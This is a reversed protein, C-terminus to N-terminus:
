FQETKSRRFRVLNLQRRCFCTCVDVPVHGPVVLVVLVGPDRQEGRVLDVVAGPPFGPRSTIRGLLGVVFPVGFSEPSLGGRGCWGLYDADVQERLVRFSVGVSEVYSSLSRVVRAFAEVSFDTAAGVGHSDEGVSFGDDAQDTRDKSLLGIFPCFASAVEAQVDKGSAAELGYVIRPDLHAVFVWEFEAGLGSGVFRLFM